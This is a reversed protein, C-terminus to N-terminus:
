VTILVDSDGHAASRGAAQADRCFQQAGAQQDAVGRRLFQQVHGCRGLWAHEGRLRQESAHEADDLEGAGGQARQHHLAM